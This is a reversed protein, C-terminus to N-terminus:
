VLRPTRLDEYLPEPAGRERMLRLEEDRDYDVEYQEVIWRGGAFEILSFAAKSNFRLGVSAVNVVIKGDLQQVQHQHSHGHAVVDAEIGGFASRFEDIGNAPDGVLGRTDTPTSHCVLLERGDEPRISHTMPLNKIIDWYSSGIREHLWANTAIVWEKWREPIIDIVKSIDVDGEEHNGMLMIVNRELLLDLLDEHGGGGGLMDGACIIQDVGDVRGIADLVSRLGVINSHIDSFLAALLDVEKPREV